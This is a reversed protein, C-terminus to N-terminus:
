RDQAAVKVNVNLNGAPNTTAGINFQQFHPNFPLAGDKWPSSGGYIGMDTGDTGANKGLCTPKLHYDHSSSYSNGDQNIFIDAQLQNKLNNAGFCSCVSPNWNIVFLNNNFFSGSSPGTWNCGSWGIFINNEFVSNMSKVPFNWGPGWDCTSNYLFINNKFTSNISTNRQYPNCGEIINSIFMCNSAGPDFSSGYSGQIICEQFILNYSNQNMIFGAQLKCRETVYNNTGDFTLGGIIMGSISGNSAGALLSITANTTGTANASDINYGMGILHIRKNVSTSLNFTGGPIFLTDGNQSHVIASDLSTFFEPPDGNQVAILNQGKLGQAMLAILVAIILASKKM